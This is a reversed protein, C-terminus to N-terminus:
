LVEFIAGPTANPKTWELKRLPDRQDAPASGKNKSTGKILRVDCYSNFRM